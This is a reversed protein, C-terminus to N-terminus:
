RAILDNFVYTVLMVLAATFVATLTHTRWNSKRTSKQVEAIKLDIERIKLEFIEKRVYDSSMSAILAKLEIIQVSINKIEVALGENTYAMKNDEPM